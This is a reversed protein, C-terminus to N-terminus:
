NLLQMLIWTSAGDEAHFVPCDNLVTTSNQALWMSMTATHIIKNSQVELSLMGSETNRMGERDQGSRDEWSTTFLLPRTSQQDSNRQLLGQWASSRGTSSLFLSSISLQSVEARHHPRSAHQGSHLWSAKSPHQDTCTFTKIAYKYLWWTVVSSQYTKKCRFVM